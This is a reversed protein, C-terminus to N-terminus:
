AGGSWKVLVRFSYFSSSITANIISKKVESNGRHIIRPPKSIGVRLTTSLFYKWVGNGNRTIERILSNRPRTCQAGSPDNDLTYGDELEEEEEKGKEIGNQKM